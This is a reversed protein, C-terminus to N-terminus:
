GPLGALDHKGDANSGVPSDVINGDDSRVQGLERCRQRARHALRPAERGSHTIARRHADLKHLTETKSEVLARSWRCEAHLRLPPFLAWAHGVSDVDRAINPASEQEAKGIAM